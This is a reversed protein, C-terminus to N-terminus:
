LPEPPKALATANVKEQYSPANKAAFGCFVPGSFRVAFGHAQLILRKPGAYVFAGTTINAYLSGKPLRYAPKGPQMPSCCNQWLLITVLGSCDKPQALLIRGNLRQIRWPNKLAETRACGRFLCFISKNTGSQLKTNMFLSARANTQAHKLGKRGV